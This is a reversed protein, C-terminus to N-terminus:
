LKAKFIFLPERDLDIVAEVVSDGPRTAWSVAGRKTLYLGNNSRNRKIRGDAQLVAFM